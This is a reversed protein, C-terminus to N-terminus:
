PKGVPPLLVGNIHFNRLLKSVLKCYYISVPESRANFGRWNAGALDVLDELVKQIIEAPPEAGLFRIHAPASYRKRALRREQDVGEFWVLFERPGLCAVSSEFPVLSNTSETFGFWSHEDAENLKVVCFSCKGHFENSVEDVVAEIKKMVSKRLTFPCHLAVLNTSGAQQRLVKGLMEALQVAYREASEEGGLVDALQDMRQFEGSSDTLVSYAMFRTPHWKGPADRKGEISQAIGIIIAKTAGTKVRWPTGGAKSFIGLAINAAAWKLSTNASVLERTCFQSIIGASLLNGKLRSYGEGEESRPIIVIAITKDMDPLQHLDSVVAEIDFQSFSKLPVFKATPHLDFSTRFLRNIGEFDPQTCGKQLMSFLIRGLPRDRELGIYTLLAKNNKPAEHPGYKRVGLYQSSGTNNSAFEYVRKPLIPANIRALHSSVIIPSGGSQHQLKHLPGGEHTLRLFDTLRRWAEVHYQSNPRGGADLAGSRILVSRNFPQTPKRRFDERLCLGFQAVAEFYVSKVVIIRAGESYSEIVLETGDSLIQSKRGEYIPLGAEICSARVCEDLYHLALGRHSSLDFTHVETHDVSPNFTAWFLGNKAADYFRYTTENPREEDPHASKIFTRVSELRSVIPLFNLTIQNSTSKFDLSMLPSWVSDSM